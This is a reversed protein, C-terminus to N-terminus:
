KEMSKLLEQAKVAVEWADTNEAYCKLTIELEKVMEVLEDHRSAKYASQFGLWRHHMAINVYNGQGDKRLDHHPANMTLEFEKRIKESM